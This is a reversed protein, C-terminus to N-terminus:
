VPREILRALDFHRAGPLRDFRDPHCTLIIIQLPGAPPQLAANGAAALRLVDLIRRHKTPDAHALPDDLIAVAAEERALIAGLALRILISLQEETGFSEEELSVIMGEGARDRVLGEPLFREGFRVDRYDDLGLYRAWELVRDSIPGMVQQVQSEKCEDFLVRLRRHAGAELNERDLHLEVEGLAAAADARRTHVGQSAEIRGRLINLQDRHGQLRQQRLALARGADSHRQEVTQEADTLQAAALSEQAVAVERRAEALEAQLTAEDGHRALEDNRANATARAAAVANTCAQLRGDAQELARRALEETRAKGERTTKLSEATDDFVEQRRQVDAHDPQWSTLASSRDCLIRQQQELEKIANEVVVRGKPLLRGLQQRQGDLDSIATDLELRRQALRDVCAEDQPNERYAGVTQAFDRDLTQLKQAASELSQDQKGRVVTVTGWDPITVEGRQRVSWTHPKAVPLDTAEAPQGDMALAIRAIKETQVTLTLAAAQLHSRLTIAERRNARVAELAQADPAVIEKIQGNLRAIESELNQAQELLQSQQHHQQTLALWQRYDDIERSRGAHTEEAQRAEQLEQTARELRRALPEHSERAVQLAAEARIAAQEAERYRSKADDRKGVREEVAALREQAQRLAREAEAFLRRRERTQEREVTIVELERQAAQVDAELHPLDDEGRELDRIVQELDRFRNEEDALAKRRDEVQRTLQLVPSPKQGKKHEGSASFWRECRKDLLKKIDLDRGTLLSGLVASLQKELSADLDKAKPLSVEGQHLWLLQNLGAESDDAKLLERTRRSAEKPERVEIIWNNAEWRELLAFGEKKKSFQKSIRYRRGGTEFEVAVKPAHDTGWPIAGRIDERTTDHDCDFLCSRLARVLSTKGTRNPGHLVVIGDPLDTMQLRGICRWNELTLGRLIM